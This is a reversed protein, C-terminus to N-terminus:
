VAAAANVVRPSPAPAPPEYGLAELGPLNGKLLFELMAGGGTSLFGLSSLPVGSSQLVAITDGGGIVCEAGAEVREAVLRAIATTWATYGSEYLGTPGNWLIYESKGIQPAIRELTGPGIDVIKEDPAVEEPRKVTAQGDAREALVDSPAIFRPHLLVDEGPAEESVLSRGVEYGKAKFVDNALAGTLFVRDYSSLLSRVLPAKTEFKAGGLIAFSPSRPTRAKELASVEERMLFGAYAPLARAIGANSAYPRHAEAFADSVVIDAMSSLLAVFAPDDAEEGSERRTNELMLCEGERMASAEVLAHEIPTGFFHISLEPALRRLAEAVPRLSDGKRGIYGAIIVRAKATVLYRLTPLARELRFLDSAGGRSDLPVNLSTRYLVRAGKLSLRPIDSLCKM